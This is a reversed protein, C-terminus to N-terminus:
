SRLLQRYLRDQQAAIADWGYVREVTKRANAGLTSRHSADGLLRLIAAAFATPESEILVDTGQTVELGNVGAPTSVIAKGMAMAEMVKINTGASALLPAIVVAAQNYAPRVDSVFGELKMGSHDLRFRLRDKQRSFHYEHNAGAIVHLVPSAKEILPFVEALFFDLALLNPLHAFSGIFLIRGSGPETGDPQFRELDVGNPLTVAREAGEITRRDKESMTVVCNVNQWADHEFTRWRDLQEVTDFDGSTAVLQEYLDITIDHEILATKAPTADAAYQAMQTFELQVIAPQWKRVSQRLAGHFALSDFDEVVDPRGLDPRAHSGVRRVQIVEVCIDLLETPPTHLEDVFTILIQSWSGAARRMLNYMRVAGGHSLPFPSYCSAVVVHLSKRSAHGPFVAVDGNTLGLIFEEPMVPKPAPEMWESAQEAASLAELSPEHHELAARLVLRRVAYNWLKRFLDPSSIARALFRLFNIELARDLDAPHYYRSTTTRHEHTVASRSVFVTPWGRQWARFGADLDEVYAPTYVEGIGGLGRLKAADYLSCGGSGYLVYSLDEGPLPEVCRVPFDRSNKQLPWEFVAKGTEERRRGPEFFIQATACFLDPVQEFAERLPAFFGPHLAMDNNLLFVHSFRAVAIGRNVAEAFSLPTESVETRVRPHEQRVFGISEDESGNDIVIVESPIGDLEREVQPLLKMLLPKGNRSPIVVSVGAPLQVRPLEPSAATGLDRKRFSALRGAIRARLSYLPRRMERPHRLRWAWTYLNGGPNLEFTLISRVRWAVHRLMTVVGGPRLMFHDINENFYLVRLPGFLMALRRMPGYPSKPQLVLGSYAIRRGQLAAKCRRYNNLVGRNVRYPIWHGQAPPFESVVFLDLDPAIAAMREVFRPVLKETASAFAVKVPRSAALDTL